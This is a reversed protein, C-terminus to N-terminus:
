VRQQFMNHVNEKKKIQTMARMIVLMHVLAGARLVNQCINKSFILVYKFRSAAIGVSFTAFMLVSM